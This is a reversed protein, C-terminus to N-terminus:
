FALTMHGGPGDFILVMYRLIDRGLLVLYGQNQLTVGTVAQFDLPPIPTGPFMLKAPYLLRRDSAATPSSVQTQGIPNLNLDQLASEDVCTVSAGTDILAWGEVPTPLESGSHTLAAALVDPISVEVPIRPGVQQLLAPNSNKDQDLFQRSHTPM